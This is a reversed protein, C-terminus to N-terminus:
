YIFTTGSDITTKFAASKWRSKLEAAQPKAYSLGTSQIDWDLAQGDATFAVVPYYDVEGTYKGSDICGLCLESGNTGGRTRYFSFVNSELTGSEVLNAFFPTAGSASLPRFGLGLIGAYPDAFGGIESSVVGFTQQAVTLGAVTVADTALYGSAGSGDVYSISFSVNSGVYTTSQSPDFLPGTCNTCSTIPVVLDSSGTDFQVTTLQPPTGVLIPGWYDDDFGEWDPWMPELGTLSGDRKRRVDFPAPDARTERRAKKASVGASMRAKRGEKGYRKRVREREQQVVHAKTPGSSRSQRHFPIVSARRRADPNLVSIPSASVLLLNLFFTAWMASQHLAPCLNVFHLSNTSLNSSLAKAGVQPPCPKVPPAQRPKCLVEMAPCDM